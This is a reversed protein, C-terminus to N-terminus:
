STVEGKLVWLAFNTPCEREILQELKLGLQEAEVEIERESTEECSFKECAWHADWYVYNLWLTKM